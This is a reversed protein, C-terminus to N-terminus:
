QRMQSIKDLLAKTEACEPNLGLAKEAAREARSLHGSELLSMAAERQAKEPQTGFISLLLDKHLEKFVSHLLEERDYILRALPRNNEDGKLYACMLRNIVGLLQRIRGIMQKLNNQTEEALQSLEDQVGLMCPSGACSASQEQSAFSQAAPYYKQLQYSSELLIMCEHFLFGIAWDLYSGEHTTAEGKTFLHHATDKLHWLLGKSHTEGLIGQLISFSIAGSEQFRSFQKELEAATLAYDRLIDRKYAERKDHRANHQM